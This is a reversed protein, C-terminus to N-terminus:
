EGNMGSQVAYRLVENSNKLNLKVKIHDRHTEVTKMSVYLKEAIERISYGHGIERFVQLERDSLRGLPTLASDSCKGRVAKLLRAAVNESVYIEGGLVRRIAHMVKAPAEEKTIYGGAGARLAREAYLAEDHMSLVLTALEPRRIKLEKILQIGDMGNMSIDIIAFDPDTSAILELATMANDAQACVCLDAEDNILQSLGQRVMPHNDVLIVRVKGCDAAGSAHENNPLVVEALNTSAQNM